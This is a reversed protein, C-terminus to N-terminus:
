RNRTEACAPRRRPDFALFHLILAIIQV